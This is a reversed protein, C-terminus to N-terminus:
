ALQLCFRGPPHCCDGFINWCGRSFSIVFNLNSCVVAEVYFYGDFFKHPFFLIVITYVALLAPLKLWWCYNHLAIQFDYAM